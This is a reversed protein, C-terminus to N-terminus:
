HKGKIEKAVGVLMAEQKIIACLDHPRTLSPYVLPIKRAYAATNKGAIGLALAPSTVGTLTHTGIPLTGGPLGHETGPALGIVLRHAM